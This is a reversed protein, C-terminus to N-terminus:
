VCDKHFERYIAQRLLQFETNSRNRPRPLDIIFEKKITGPRESMVIVRDGMYVAEEIDHTVMIMTTKEKKWIDLVQQQLKLRTLADLAGFPEDLLLIEPRNVLARAIAVRQAMGGSLQGPYAKEFGALGVLKLHNAILEAHEEATGKQLAFEVNEWVTLWPLLRHEQFVIGRGLGAGAIRKGAITVAGKFDTDLGSIIRLLTSKGCGSAGVISVYEHRDVKLSIGTLSLITGSRGKYAKSLNTIVVHSNDSM